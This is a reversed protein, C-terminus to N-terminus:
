VSHLKIVSRAEDVQKREWLTVVREIVVGEIM